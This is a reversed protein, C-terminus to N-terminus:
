SVLIGVADSIVQILETRPRRCSMLGEIFFPRANRKCYHIVTLDQTTTNLALAAFMLGYYDESEYRKWRTEQSPLLPNFSLCLPVRQNSQDTPRLVFSVANSINGIGYTDRIEKIQVLVEHLTLM